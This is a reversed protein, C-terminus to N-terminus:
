KIFVRRGVEFVCRWFNMMFCKCGYKRGVSMMRVVKIVIGVRVVVVLVGVYELFMVGIKKM